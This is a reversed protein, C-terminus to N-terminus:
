GAQLPSQKEEELSAKLEVDEKNDSIREFHAVYFQLDDGESHQAKMRAKVRVGYGSKHRLGLEGEWRGRGLLSLWIQTHFSKDSPNETLSRPKEGIIDEPKYGLIECFASNARIVHGKADAILMPFALEFAQANQRREEERAKQKSIDRIYSVFIYGAKTKASSISIEVPFERGSKRMASLEIRQDLVQGEGTQLLHQMGMIHNKRMREPIITEALRLGLIEERAWGFLQEATPNFEIITDQEDVVVIADLSASYIAQSREEVIQTQQYSFEHDRLSSQLRNYSRDMKQRLQNVENVTTEIEDVNFLSFKASGEDGDSLQHLKRLPRTISFLLVYIVVIALLGIGSTGWILVQGVPSAMNDSYHNRYGVIVTGLKGEDNEVEEIVVTIGDEPTELSRSHAILTDGQDITLYTLDEHAVFRDTMDRIITHNKELLPIEFTVSVLEALEKARYNMEEKRADALYGFALTIFALIVATFFFATFLVARARINM